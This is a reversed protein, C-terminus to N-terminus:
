TDRRVKSAGFAAGPIATNFRADQVRITTEGLEDHIATRFPLLEGDVARYDDFTESQGDVERRLALASRESVYLRAPPGSAPVLEMLYADESGVKARDLVHIEKYLVSLVLLPHLHYDRRARDDDADGNTADQGFTTEQGGRRGDFYVRLRGIERGAATWVEEEVHQDPAKARVITDATVGQNEYAKVAHIELSTHGRLVREGGLAAIM